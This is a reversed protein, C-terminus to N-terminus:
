SGVQKLLKLAEARSPDDPTLRASLYRKLLDRATDLNRGTQIYVEARNFLLKPSDPAIQEARQFTQESEQYRGRKALFKALDIVRGVKNPALEMARRLQEEANGFEKRKEALKAQAYHGEILDLETIRQAAHSAKDLGGGLFGPAELYYEFLDSLAEENKPNLQVAKEFNQRARSAYMPATFPTSTEARRGYARGLWHFYVSNSPDASTARELYDTAKRYDGLMYYNKGILHLVAADKDKQGQSLLIKLSGDYDTYSYLKSAQELNPAAALLPLLYLTGVVLFRM